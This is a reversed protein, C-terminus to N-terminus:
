INTEDNIYGWTRPLYFGDIAELALEITEKWEEETKYDIAIDWYQIGNAMNIYGVMKSAPEPYIHHFDVGEGWFGNCKEEYTQGITFTINFKSLIFDPLIIEKELGQKSGFAIAVDFNLEEFVRPVVDLFQDVARLRKLEEEDIPVPCALDPNTALDRFFNHNLAQSIERLHNIKFDNRKFIDYVNNRSTHLLQAVETIDLGKRRVENEIISGITINQKM